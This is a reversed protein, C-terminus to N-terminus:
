YCILDISTESSCTGEMKLTSSYALYSLLMFYAVISGESGVSWVANYKLIDAEEYGGSYSSWINPRLEILGDFHILSYLPVWVDPYKQAYLYGAKYKDSHITV